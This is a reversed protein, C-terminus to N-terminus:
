ALSVGHLIIPVHNVEAVFLDLVDGECAVEEVVGFGEEAV